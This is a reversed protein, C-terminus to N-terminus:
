QLYQKWSSSLLKGLVGDIPSQDENQCHNHNNLWVFIRIPTVRKDKYWQVSKSCITSPWERHNQIFDPKIRYLTQLCSLTRVPRPQPSCHAGVETGPSLALFPRTLPSLPSLPLPRACDPCIIPLSLTDPTNLLYARTGSRPHYSPGILFPPFAPGLTAPSSLMTSSWIITM